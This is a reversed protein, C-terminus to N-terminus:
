AKIPGVGTGCVISVLRPMTSPLTGSRLGTSSMTIGLDAGILIYTSNVEAGFAM